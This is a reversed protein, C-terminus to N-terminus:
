TPSNMKSICTSTMSVIPNKANSKQRRIRENIEPLERGRENRGGEREGEKAMQNTNPKKHKGGRIIQFMM